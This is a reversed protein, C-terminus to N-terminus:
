VSAPIHVHTPLLDSIRNVISTDLCVDRPQPVTPNLLPFSIKFFTVGLAEVIEYLSVFSTELRSPVLWVDSVDRMESLWM